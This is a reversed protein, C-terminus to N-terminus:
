HVALKKTYEADATQVIYVGATNVRKEVVEGPKINFSGITVGSVTVIRVDTAYRLSSEVVITKRASYINLTGPEDKKTEHPIDIEAPGNSFLISRTTQRAETNKSIFYPRFADVLTTDTASVKDFSSGDASLTYHESGPMFAMNLYNPKFTYETNNYTKKTGGMERDSVGINAGTESAFTITEPNNLPVPKSNGTSIAEFHGSLDFEYYTVGPFGIIYPTGNALMPYSDLKRQDDQYYELYTDGNKDKQNHSVGKYYYDWLFTNTVTKNIVPSGDNATPYSFPATLTDAGQKTMESNNELSRLWYEHGIKTHTNNFSESSGSYFHTIEGKHDTTVLEASFPLSIAEWGKKRDVYHDPTRQYWMRKDDAFKYAIPANFDQRDVLLHDRTAIGNQVWHGRIKDTQKHAVTRYDPNTEAYVPEELHDSVAWGTMGSATTSDPAATYALLNQTLYFNRFGTLGGDDLLPPYFLEYSNNAVAPSGGSSHQWGLKFGGAVDGKSGTFDIATMDKYAYKAPQDKVTPAFVAFPNFHAVSMTDNRFYAPARYVRNGYMDTLINNGSRKVATPVSDHTLGEVHNYNLAQGFFIYDDPWIPFHKLSDANYRIDTEDPITGGAYVFDGDAFRSEVYGPSSLAPYDTTLKNADAYRKFLYFGNLNYAVEGNNFAMEDKRTPIGYSGSHNTYKKAASLNDNEMYYSNVIHISDNLKPKGFVPKATKTKTTDNAYVWTNEVYGSGSEAIGAGRFPGIVGVNYVDGCLDGFLSKNIGSITHGDGHFTGEFCQISDGIPTWAPSGSSASYDIDSRLIFELNQGGKVGNPGDTNLLAHGKLQSNATTGSTATIRGNTVTYGNGGNKGVLSLDFLNKLLDLGNKIGVSDTSYDNIYIKSDRKLRSRDYDVHLHYTSDNMVSKLDHYNAVSVPVYNSYTKGLYTKAYYAIYYGDQYWYLSDRSQTYEKGNTHNEAYSEKEFIEWGGGQIEYAGPTIRPTQMSISSGPLVIRPARIDDIVPIGSEFNIHIRVVHRESIPTIHLGSADSEDYDYQYIVTIIKEKSLDNIDSNRSVYLTSTETPATGHIVFNLQKNPLKIYDDAKILTGVPVTENTNYTRGNAVRDIVSVGMGNENVVYAERCYYYPKYLDTGSYKEIDGDRFTIKQIYNDKEYQSLSNYEEESFTEGAAHPTENHVFATSAIYYIGAGTINIPAYHRQENPLSEYAERQLEDDKAVTITANLKDKYVLATDGVYTATYDVPTKLSYHAKNTEAQTKTTFGQGDYQYKTGERQQKGNVWGYLSDVLLDLADYNFEFNKRDKESMSSWAALARYNNGTMYYDGGYYGPKTCYYAPVILEQIDKAMQKEEDTANTKNFRNYFENKQAETMLQGPYIEENESFEITATCVYAPAVKGSLNNNWEDATYSSKALKAGVQLHQNTGTTDTAEAYATTIYAPEFEAQTPLAAQETSNLRAYAAKYITDNKAPIIDALVYEKQGYLGNVTPRYTPGDIYGDGGTQNKAAPQGNSPTYWQNWLNPNNVNYTLIYGTNHSLNNSSHFVEGFAVNKKQGVHYVSDTSALALYEDKLLVSDAPFLKSGIKCSDSVVYTDEVFLRQISSPLLSWDWYSIPDNLSYEVDNINIKTDATLKTNNNANTYSSYYAYRNPQVDMLTMKGNQAAAITLPIEVTESYANPSGTFASIYQDYVYVQGQIFWYHAPVRRPDDIEYRGSVNYCDDIIPQNVSSNIFNGSTEWPHQKRLVGTYTSDTEVYEYDWHTAASDNLMTLTTAKRGTKKPVGHINKAYVFGGGIGPQVNILDLEVVGTIPGWDKGQLSDGKSLETTLELYVGSALAVKNHCTGNNRMRDTKHDEKWKEFTTKGDAAYTPNQATNVNTARISDHFNVDSTLAGLYHVINYIGFYNGHDTKKNLSVERVRNITYHKYDVQDTQRDRAGRMVMRSGWVGCLDARQITNMIRGAYISVVGNEVWYQDNPRGNVVYQTSDFVLLLQDESLTSGPSYTTGENDTCEKVCKYKVEYYAQERPPLKKYDALNINRTKDNDINYYDTGYNTINLERYGDVLTLNGDGYLGGTHGTGITILDRNYVDNISATANGFVTPANASMTNSGAAVNGGAFVANHIIVGREKHLVKGDATETMSGVDVNQWGGTWSGSTTDKPALTNLYGIPIYEGAKYQKSDYSVDDKLQLWPEVLVKTDETLQRESNVIIWDTNTNNNNWKHKYYYGQYSDGYRVSGEPKLGVGFTSDTEYASYVYGEDGGGFVNGFERAMGEVTGIEGGHIRVETQGFVAGKSSLDLTAKVKPDMYLTGDNGWSDKGRGGGFVNRLVHGNYMEVLTHGPRYITAEGNKVGYTADANALKTGRGIPGLEGGGYLSGRITGGYMKIHSKDVYSNVVYGGGFANGSLDLDNETKETVNEVYYDKLSSSSSERKQRSSADTTRSSANEPDYWYGIFGNNIHLNATGYVSGGEGGAYVNRQIAPFGKVFISDAPNQASIVSDVDQKGIVVYTEGPIDNAPNASIAGNHLGVSGKWGGGYVNRATGGEIYANASAMFNGGYADYVNGTTGAAYIDRNVTGGLLAIYTAGAVDGSNPITDNGLGGGYAYGTVIAGKEIIVNTNYKYTKTDREDMEARRTLVTNNLNTSDNAVYNDMSDNPEYYSGLTWADKWVEKWEDLKDPAYAAKIHDPLLNISVQQNEKFNYANMYAQISQANLVNGQEGGGYAQYVKAGSKLNVQTYESWTLPGYGAGYVTGLLSDNQWVPSSVNVRGYLTRRVSNNGGYIGGSVRAKESTNRYDVNSEYVDCPPLANTGYAGGFIKGIHITSQEPVNVLTRRTVGEHYSGGYAAAIRGNALDIIASVDDLNFGDATTEKFGYAMGMGNNSGSGFVETNAFYEKNYPIDVLVYSRDQAKDAERHAPAGEGAGFIKDVHNKSNDDPRFNVFTSHLRPISFGKELTFENEYDYDGFCGGFIEKMSGQRYEIYTNSRLVDKIGDGDADKDHIMAMTAQTRVKDNFNYLGKITGGLDNGGYIHDRMYTFGNLGVYTETHGNIDANCSGAFLNFLRGNDLHVYTNGIIPGSFGGGYIFEVDAVLATSDKSRPEGPRESNLNVHTSYRTDVADPYDYKNATGNWTGRGIAGEESGGFVQFTYGKQINVTTSGWIETQKGKGGGFLSMAEGLVDMGQKNLIVGSNRKTIYFTDREYLIDDDTEEGTFADFVARRNHLSDKINIVVNGNIHGSTNCGGYLNGGILRRSMDWATANGQKVSDQHAWNIIEPVYHGASDLNVTNWELALRTSDLRMPQFRLKTLNMVIRNKINGAADVYGNRQETESGLIGGEYRANYKTSDVNANNCGGVLKDYITIPADLEIVISDAYTMSGRNGGYYLSGIYSSYDLYNVRDGNNTSEVILKPVTDMTVGKMYESMTTPDILRLTSYQPITDNAYYKLFTSDVMKDGNNGLYVNDAIVHSGIKLETLPYKPLKSHSEDTELTACNGGVFVSGGIVTKETASKGRIMISVQEADPRLANLSDISSQGKDYYFDGYTKDYKFAENDTYPYAGNGGGYVDGRVSAQIGVANGYYVKGRVDNGGYVNNVDGGAVIVRAALNAPFQYVAIGENTVYDVDKYTGTLEDWKLPHVDAMRCGGFLNDVKLTSAAPIELFLGGKYTMPGRNGGSYLNRVSGAMLNWTPRIAMTDKNNGGFVSGIQFDSSETKALGSHVGMDEQRLDNLLNWGNDALIETVVESPNDICIVASDTVTAANGGGYCHAITGGHIDLFTKAVDPKAFPTKRSAVITDYTLTKYQAYYYGNADPTKTYVYDGNGGGYAQGGYFKAVIDEKGDDKKKTSFLVFTDWSSNVRNEATDPLEEPLIKPVRKDAEPNVGIHGAIDNGGFVYNIIISDSANGLDVHVFTNGGVDAMRAGGFVKGMPMKKAKKDLSDRAGIDGARVTVTTNGKVLGQNGGGYVNGSITIQARVATAALLMM